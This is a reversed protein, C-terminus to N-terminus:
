KKPKPRGTGVDAQALAAAKEGPTTTRIAAAHEEAIRTAEELLKQRDIPENRLAELYWVFSEMAILKYIAERHNKPLAADDRIAILADFFKQTDLGAKRLRDVHERVRPTARKEEAM